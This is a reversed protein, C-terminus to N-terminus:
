LWGWAKAVILSLWLLGLLVIAVRGTASAEFWDGIRIKLGDVRHNRTTM